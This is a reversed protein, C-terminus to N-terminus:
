SKGRARSGAGRRVGWVARSQEREPRSFRARPGERPERPAAVRPWGPPVPRGTGEEEHRGFDGALGASSLAPDPPQHVRVPRQPRPAADGRGDEDGGAALVGARAAPTRADRPEGRPGGEHTGRGLPTYEEVDVAPAVDSRRADGARHAAGARRLDRPEGGAAASWGRRPAPGRGRAPACPGTGATGQPDDAAVTGCVARRDVGWRTRAADRGSCRGLVAPARGSARVVISVEDHACARRECGSRLMTM